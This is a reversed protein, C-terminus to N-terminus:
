FLFDSATVTASGTAIQFDAVGDGNVDGMVFGGKVWLDGALHGPASVFRFAQDGSVATNADIGRLDIDDIGSQFDTITDVTTGRSHSVSTFVFVDAGAGGTLIDAGAGGALHDAGDGGSLRDNGADGQM